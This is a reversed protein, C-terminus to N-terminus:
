NFGRHAELAIIVDHRFRFPETVHAFATQWRPTMAEAVLVVQSPLAGALHLQHRLLRAMSTAWVQWQRRTKRALLPQCPGSPEYIAFATNEDLETLGGTRMVQLQSDGLETWRRQVNELRQEAASQSRLSAACGLVAPKPYPLGGSPLSRVSDSFQLRVEHNFGILSLRRQLKLASKATGDTSGHRRFLESASLRQGLSKLVQLSAMVGRCFISAM